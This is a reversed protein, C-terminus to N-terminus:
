KKKEKIARLHEIVRRVEIDLTNEAPKDTPPIRRWRLLLYGLSRLARGLLVRWSSQRVEAGQGGEGQEEAPQQAKEEERFTNVKAALAQREELRLPERAQWVQQPSQRSDVPSISFVNAELRAREADEETWLGPHGSREAQEETRAKMSGVGAEASGNYEPSYAPSYLVLVGYGVLAKQMAEARYASGNDLKLVLPPGHILFLGILVAVATQATAQAHSLRRVAELYPTFHNTQAAACHL